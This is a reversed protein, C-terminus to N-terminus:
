PTLIKNLPTSFTLIKGIAISTYTVLFALLLVVIFNIVFWSSIYAFYPVIFFHIIYVNLSYRGIYAFSNRLIRPMSMEYKKIFFFALISSTLYGVVFALFSVNTSQFHWGLGILSVLLLFLNVGGMSLNEIHHKRVLAGAIFCPFYRSLYSFGLVNDIIEPPYKSLALLMIEIVVGGIMLLKTSRYIMWFFLIMLFLAELFWYGRKGISFFIDIINEHYYLAAVVIAVVFPLVIRWISKRLQGLIDIKSKYALYGSCLFFLPVDIKCLLSMGSDLTGGIHQMVVLLMAIGKAVDIFTKREM